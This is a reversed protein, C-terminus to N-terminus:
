FKGGKKQRVAEYTIVAASIAANLSTARGKMPIVIGEDCVDQWFASVGDHESGIVVATKRTLDVDTFPKSLKASTIVIRFNNDKLFKYTQENTSEVVPVHFVTGLSSRVINHNYVDTSKNCFIIGEIGAGDATRIITGLNGPKEVSEIILLFSQEHTDLQQLTIVKPRCIALVGKIREGFAIQSFEEKTIFHVNLHEYDKVKDGLVERCVYISHVEIGAELARKVETYGEVITLGYLERNKRKRLKRVLLVYNEERM